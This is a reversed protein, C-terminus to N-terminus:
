RLGSRVRHEGFIISAIRGVTWSNKAHFQPDLGASM